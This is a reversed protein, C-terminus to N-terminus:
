RHAWGWSRAPFGWNPVKSMLQVPLGVLSMWVPCGLGCFSLKLPFDCGCQRPSSSSDTSSCPMANAARDKEYEYAFDRWIEYDPRLRRLAKFALAFLRWLRFGEHDYYAADEVH